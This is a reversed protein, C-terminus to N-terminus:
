QNRCVASAWACVSSSCVSRARTSAPSRPPASAAIASSCRRASRACAGNRAASAAAAISSRKVNQIVWATETCVAPVTSSLTSFSSGPTTSTNGTRVEVGCRRLAV